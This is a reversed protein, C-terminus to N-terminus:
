WNVFTSIRPAVNLSAIAVPHAMLLSLRRRAPIGTGAAFFDDQSAEDWPGFQREVVDRYAAHHALRAFERDGEQAARMELKM